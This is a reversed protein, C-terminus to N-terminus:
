FHIHYYKFQVFRLTIVAPKDDAVIHSAAVGKILVAIFCYKLM